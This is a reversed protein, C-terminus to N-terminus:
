NFLKTEGGQSPLFRVFYLCPLLSLTIVGSSISAIRFDLALAIAELLLAM